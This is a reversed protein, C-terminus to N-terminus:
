RPNVEIATWTACPWAVRDGHLSCGTCIAGAFSPDGSAIPVHIDRVQQIRNRLSTVEGVLVPTDGLCALMQKWLGDATAASPLPSGPPRFTLEIVSVLVAVNRKSIEDLDIPTTM